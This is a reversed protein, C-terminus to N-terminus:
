SHSHPDCFHSLVHAPLDMAGELGFVQDPLELPYLKGGGEQLTKRFSLGYFPLRLFNLLKLFLETPVGWLNLRRKTISGIGM